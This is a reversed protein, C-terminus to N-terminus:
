DFRWAPGLEMALWARARRWDGAITRRSVGLQSAIEDGTMGGFTRLAVIQAMRADLKELRHLAEDLALVDVIAGEGPTGIGSLTIREGGDRKAAIRRRCHDILIHRMAQAAIACFHERDRWRPGDGTGASLRVYAEHVLGTPELTASGNGGRFYRHAVGRLYSYVEPFLVQAEDAPLSVAV